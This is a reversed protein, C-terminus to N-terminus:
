AAKNLIHANEKVTKAVEFKLGANNFAPLIRLTLHDRISRKSREEREHINALNVGDLEPRNPGNM